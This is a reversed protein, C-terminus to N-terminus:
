KRIETIVLKITTTGINKATHTVAPIFVADGEKIDLVVPDKDKDTIQIKGGSLAYVVHNPHSHWPIVDNPAMSFKIVRVNDNELIVKQYNKPALTVPDQAYINASIFLFLVTFLRFSKKIVTKM